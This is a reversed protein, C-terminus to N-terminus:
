DRGMVKKVLAAMQWTYGPSHHQCYYCCLLLVPRDGLNVFRPSQAQCGQPFKLEVTLPAVKTLRNLSLCPPKSSERIGRRRVLGCDVSPLPQSGPAATGAVPPLSALAWAFGPRQGGGGQPCGDRQWLKQPSCAAASPM